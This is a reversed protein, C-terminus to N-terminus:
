TTQHNERHVYVRPVRKSVSCIVEDAITGQLDAIEEISIFENGQRGYLVVEDGTSVGPVDTVDLMVQDMCVRGIVPVRIGHVLAPARNSLLRNYGDAYGIPITAVLTRRKAIFTRGYGVSKGPPLEKLFVIKTKLTMAQRLEVDRVLHKTDHLGYLMIGPRVMDLYSEPLNLIAASNAMHRLPIHIGAKRIEDTLRRFEEIQIHSFSLDPDGSSPFHTFIGEIELGPMGSLQISFEVAEALSIGLRGMGTDVKIHVKMRKGAEVACKSLETAFALDCVMTSVNHAIIEPIGDPLVCQLILIPTNIGANRLELAEELTAVGLMEAGANLVAQSVPIAGHGYGDAKVAPCIKVEPGVLNRVQRFNFAIAELDIEAVTPRFM